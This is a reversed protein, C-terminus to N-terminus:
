ETQVSGFCVVTYLSSNEKKNSILRKPTREGAMHGMGGGEGWCHSWCVPRLDRRRWRRLLVQVAGSWGPFSHPCPWSSTDGHGCLSCHPGEPPRSHMHSKKVCYVLNSTLTKIAGRRQEKREGGREGERLWSVMGHRKRGGEGRWPLWATQFVEAERGM